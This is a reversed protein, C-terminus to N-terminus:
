IIGDYIDAVTCTFGIAPIALVDVAQTLRVPEADFGTTGDKQSRRLWIAVDIADQSVIVYAELSPLALYENVKDNFDTKLSSPSTVEVLVVPEATSRVKRDFPVRVVSAQPFRYSEPDTDIALDGTLVFWSRRDVGFSLLAILRAALGSHGLSGGTMEVVRGRVLEYRKGGQREVWDLFNTRDIKVPTIQNM